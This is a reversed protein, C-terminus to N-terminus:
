YIMVTNLCSTYEQIQLLVICTYMLMIPSSTLIPLLKKLSYCKRILLKLRPCLPYKELWMKNKWSFSQTVPWHCSVWIDSQGPYIGSIKLVKEHAKSANQGHWNMLLWVEGATMNTFSGPFNRFSPSSQKKFLCATFAKGWLYFFWVWHGKAPLWLRYLWVYACPQTIYTVCHYPSYSLNYKRKHLKLCVM